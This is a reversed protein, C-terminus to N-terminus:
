GQYRLKRRHGSQHGVLRKGIPRVGGFVWVFVSCIRAVDRGQVRVDFVRNGAALNEVDTFYLTVDYDAPKDEPGRLPITCETM